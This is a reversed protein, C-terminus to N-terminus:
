CHLTGKTVLHSVPSSVLQKKAMKSGGIARPGQLEEVQGPGEDIFQNTPLSLDGGVSELGSGHCRPCDGERRHKAGYLSTAKREVSHRISGGAVRPGSDNDLPVVESGFVVGDGVTQSKVPFGSYCQPGGGSPNGIPALSKISGSLINGGYDQESWPKQFRKQEFLGSGSPQGVSDKCPRWVRPTVTEFGSFSGDSGFLQYALGKNKSVVERESSPVSHSGGLWRTVRRYPDDVESPLAFSTSAEVSSKSEVLSAVIREDSPAGQSVSGEKQCESEKELDSCHGQSM